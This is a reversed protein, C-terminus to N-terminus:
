IKLIVGLDPSFKLLADINNLTAKRIVSGVLRVFKIM